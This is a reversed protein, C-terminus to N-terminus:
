KNMLNKEDEIYEFLTISDAREPFFAGPLDKETVFPATGYLDLAHWYALARLFRAEPIMDDVESFGSGTAARIFENCTTIFYM